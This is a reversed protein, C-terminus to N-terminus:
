LLVNGRFKKRVCKGRVCYEKYLKEMEVITDNRKGCNAIETQKPAHQHFSSWTNQGSDRLHM